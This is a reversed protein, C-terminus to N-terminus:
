HGHHEFHCHHHRSRLNDLIMHYLTANSHSSIVITGNTLQANLLMTETIGSTVGSLDITTIAIYSDNNTITVNQSETKLEIFDDVELKVPITSLDTALVGDLEMAPDAAKKDLDIRLEIEDYTGAPITFNGFTAAISSMLDIQEDTTSTFEAKVGDQKAEFKITRPYAYGSTWQINANATSKQALGTSTNTATLQYSLQPQSNNTNTDNKKCSAMLIGAAM